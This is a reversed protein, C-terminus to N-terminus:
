MHKSLNENGNLTIKADHHFQLLYAKTKKASENNEAENIIYLEEDFPFVWVCEVGSYLEYYLRDIELEGCRVMSYYQDITTKLFSNDDMYRRNIYDEKGLGMYVSYLQLHLNFCKFFNYARWYLWVVNFYKAKSHEVLRDFILQEEETKPEEPEDYKFEYISINGKVLEKYLSIELEGVRELFPLPKKQGVWSNRNIMFIKGLKVMAKKIGEERIDSFSLKYPNGKKFLDIYEEIYEPPIEFDDKHFQQPFAENIVLFINGKHVRHLIYNFKHEMLLEKTIRLPIDEENIDMRKVLDRIAEQRNEKLNFVAEPIDHFSWKLHVYENPYVSDIASFILGDYNAYLMVDLYNDRFDKLTLEPITEKTLGLKDILYLIGEKAVHPHTNWYEETCADKLEWPKTREEFFEDIMLFVSDKYYHMLSFLGYEEITKLDLDRVKKGDEKIKKLLWIVADYRNDKKEFYEKTVENSYYRMFLRRSLFINGADFEWPRFMGPRVEEFMQFASSNYYEELYKDLHFPSFTLYSVKKPIEKDECDLYTIVKEAIEKRIEKDKYQKSLLAVLEDKMKAQKEQRIIIIEKEPFADLVAQKPNDGYVNKLMTGLKHKTFMSKIIRYEFDRDNFVLLIECLYRTCVKAREKGTSGNWYGPGWQGKKELVNKYKKITGEKLKAYEVEM